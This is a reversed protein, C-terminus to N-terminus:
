PKEEVDIKHESARTAASDSDNRRDDLRDTRLPRRGTRAHTFAPLVLDVIRAAVSGRATHVIVRRDIVPALVL